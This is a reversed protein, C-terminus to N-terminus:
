NKKYAAAKVGEKKDNLMKIYDNKTEQDVFSIPTLQSVIDFINRGDNNMIDVDLDIDTEIFFDWIENSQQRKRFESYEVDYDAFRVLEKAALMLATEEDKNKLNADIDSRKLLEAVVDTVREVVALMLATYGKDNQLNVKINSHKLLINACHVDEEKIALMLASDGENNPM